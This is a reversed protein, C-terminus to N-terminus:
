IAPARASIVPDILRLPRSCPLPAGVMALMGKRFLAYRLVQDLDAAMVSNTHSTTPPLHIRVEPEAIHAGQRCRPERRTAQNPPSCCSQSHGGVNSRNGLGAVARIGGGRRRDIPGMESSARFSNGIQRPVSLEFGSGELLCDTERPSEGEQTSFGATAAAHAPEGLRCLRCLCARSM